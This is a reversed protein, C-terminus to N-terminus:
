QLKVTLKVPNHDSYEFGADVTEVSLIEIGPSVLFGDIIFFQTEPNSPDYAMNLLRCTAHENDYALQWGEPLSSMDFIAPTWTSTAKIPFVDLTGPFSQNFDGGAIVYNGKSYEENMIEVLRKAQLIKGEGKDYAELHFNIVALKKDTGEIDYHTVLVCRKLQAVSMPWSFANPLAIRTAKNESTRSVSYTALGGEVHGIPPWPFPVYACKYNYAFATSAADLAITLSAVEDYRYSRKSYRDTEQLIMIDSRNAKLTDIVGNFYYLFDEKTDPTGDTKGGDLVFDEKKGLGCYGVNWTLISVEDTLAKPEASYVVEVEEREAPKYETVTLFGIFGVAFLIIAGIVSLVAILAVKRPSKKRTSRYSRKKDRTVRPKYYKIKRTDSMNKEKTRRRWM